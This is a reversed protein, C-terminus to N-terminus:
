VRDWVRLLPVCRYLGYITTCEGMPNLFSVPPGGKNKSCVSAWLASFFKTSWAGRKYLPRSSRGGGRIELGPDPVSRYSEFLLYKGDDPLVPEATM